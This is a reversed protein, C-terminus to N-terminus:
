NKHEYIRKLRFNSYFDSIFIFKLRYKIKIKRLKYKYKLKSHSFDIYNIENFFFNIINERDKKEKFFYIKSIQALYHTLKLAGLYENIYSDKGINILYEEIKDFSDKIELIKLSYTRSISNESQRYKLINDTILSVKNTVSLYKIYFNVDQAIKVDDFIIKNKIIIDRKYLKNCPFPSLFICRDFIDVNIVEPEFIEKNEIILNDKLIEYNGIVLDSNKSNNILVEIANENLIDDSDFFMVYDGTAIKLGKNRSVPAGQNKQNLIIIKGKYKKLINLSNDTSGDNIYIVEINKYTQNLISKINEELYKESNYVPVIISIKM